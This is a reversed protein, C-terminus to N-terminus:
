DVFGQQKLLEMYAAKSLPCRALDLFQKKDLKCQYRMLKILPEGIDKESGHSIKTYLVLKGNYWFELYHHDGKSETFGKKKLNKLTTKTPIAAM